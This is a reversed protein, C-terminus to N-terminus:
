LARLTSLETFLEKKKESLSISNKNEHHIFGLNVKRKIFLIREGETKSQNWKLGRRCM